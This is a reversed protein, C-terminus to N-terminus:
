FTRIMDHYQKKYKVHLNIYFLPYIHVLIPGIQNNFGAGFIAWFISKKKCKLGYIFFQIEFHKGKNYM